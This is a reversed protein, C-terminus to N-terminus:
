WRASSPMTSIMVTSYAIWYRLAPRLGYLGTSNSVLSLDGEPLDAPPVVPM